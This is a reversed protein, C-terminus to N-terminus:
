FAHCIKKLYRDGVKITMPNLYVSDAEDFTSDFTNTALSVCGLWITDRILLFDPNQFVIILIAM